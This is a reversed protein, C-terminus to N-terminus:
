YRNFGSWVPAFYLLGSGVHIRHGYSVYGIAIFATRHNELTPIHPSADPDTPFGSFYPFRPFIHITHPHPPFTSSSYLINSITPIYPSPYSFNQFFHPFTHSPTPLPLIHLNNHPFTSFTPFQSFTHRLFSFFKSAHSFKPITYIPEHSAGEGILWSRAATDPKFHGTALGDSGM